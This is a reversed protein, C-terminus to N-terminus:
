VAPCAASLGCAQLTPQEQGVALVQHDVFASSLWVGVLRLFATIAETAAALL